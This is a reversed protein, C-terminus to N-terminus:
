LSVFVCLCVSTVRFMSHMAFNAAATVESVKTVMRFAWEGFQGDANVAAVWREAAAAKIEQLPDYGKTELIVHRTPSGKLRILFDPVFDHPAGNHLYLIALGKKSSTALTAIARHVRNRM